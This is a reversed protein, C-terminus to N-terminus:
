LYRDFIKYVGYAIVPFCVTGVLWYNQMILSYVVILLLLGLVFITISVHMKTRGKQPEDTRNALDENFKEIETTSLTPTSSIFNEETVNESDSDDM